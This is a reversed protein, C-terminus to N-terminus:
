GDYAWVTQSLAVLNELWLPPGRLGFKKCGKLSVRM